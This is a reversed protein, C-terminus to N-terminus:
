ENRDFVPEGVNAGVLAIVRIEPSRGLAGRGRVGSELKAMKSIEYGYGFFEV